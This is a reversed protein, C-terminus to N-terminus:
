DSVNATDKVALIKLSSPEHRFLAFLMWTDAAVGVRFAACGVEDEESSDVDEDEQERTDKKEGDGNEVEEEREEESESAKDDLFDSM